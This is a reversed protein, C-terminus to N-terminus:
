FALSNSRGHIPYDSPGPTPTGYATLNLYAAVQNATIALLQEKSFSASTDYDVGDVFSIFSVLYATYSRATQPIDM